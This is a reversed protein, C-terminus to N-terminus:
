KGTSGFGGAGRGTESLEDTWEFTDMSCPVVVLQAIHEGPEIYRMERGHNLLPVFWEGRYDSDFVGVKNAPALDRKVSIGSRAFMLGVYGEPIAIAIGLPILKTTNPPIAVSEDICACLDVDASGVTARSPLVAKERLRKVQIM